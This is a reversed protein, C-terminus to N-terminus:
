CRLCAPLGLFGGESSEGGSKKGRLVSGRKDKAGFPELVASSTFTRCLGSQDDLLGKLVGRLVVKVRTLLGALLESGASSSRAALQFQKGNPDKQITKKTV